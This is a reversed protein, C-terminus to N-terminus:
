KKLLDGTSKTYPLNDGLMEKIKHLKRDKKNKRARTDAKDIDHGIKKRMRTM